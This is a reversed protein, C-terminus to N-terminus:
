SVAWTDRGLYRNDRHIVRINNQVENFRAVGFIELPPFANCEHSLKMRDIIAIDRARLLLWGGTLRYKQACRM